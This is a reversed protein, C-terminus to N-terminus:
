ALSVRYFHGRRCPPRSGRAFGHRPERTTRATVQCRTWPKIMLIAFDDLGAAVTVRPPLPEPALQTGSLPTARYGLDDGAHVGSAPAAM